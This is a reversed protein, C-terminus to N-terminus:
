RKRRVAAGGTQDVLGSARGKDRPRSERGRAADHVPWLLDSGVGVHARARSGKAGGLVALVDGIVPAEIAAAHELDNRGRALARWLAEREMDPEIAPHASGDAREGPSLGLRQFVPKTEVAVGPNILVAPLPPLNLPASM